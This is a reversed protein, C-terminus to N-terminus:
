RRESAQCRTGGRACCSAPRRADTTVGREVIEIGAVLVREIGDATGYLRGAGSPLDFKTRVEGAAITDPDFLVVDPVAGERIVGRDHLGYLHAPDSTLMKVAEELPLVQAERVAHQLFHTAFNFTATFDLHAGADSGGILTRDDRWNNM